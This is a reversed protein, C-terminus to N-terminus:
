KYLIEQMIGDISETGDDKFTMTISNEPNYRTGEIEEHLTSLDDQINDIYLVIDDAKFVKPSLRHGIREVCERITQLKFFNFIGNTIEDDITKTLKGLFADERTRQIRGKVALVDVLLAFDEIDIKEQLISDVVEDCSYNVKDWEMKMLFELRTHLPVSADILDDKLVLQELVGQNRFSTTYFTLVDAKAVGSHHVEVFYSPEDMQMLELMRQNALEFLEPSIEVYADGMRALRHINTFICYLQEVYRAGQILIRQTDPSQRLYEVIFGHVSPNHLKVAYENGEVANISVFCESLVKLIKAWETDLANLPKEALGSRNYIPCFYKYAKRWDSEPIEEGMTGVILLAYKAENSIYEFAQEWVSTPRDLMKVFAKMFDAEPVTTWVRKDLYTEIVRPTFYPHNLIQMYNKKYLVQKLYSEPLQANIIHNRLIEARIKASYDGMDITCKAIDYNNNRLKEFHSKADSLIYERTTMILLKDSKRKVGDILGILKSEFGKEEIELANAGLFDDIYVIQKRGDQLLGVGKDLEGKVCVLEEYKEKGLMYWILMRALTTKGIGPIGSIIVYHYKKLIELAKTFSENEVYIKVTEKIEDLEWDSWNKTDKHLVHNLINTSSLWLKYFREEIDKHKELLAKLDDKGLIDSTKLIYPEFMEKIADKQPPNLGISTSLIYREPKLKKVKKVEEKLQTFLSKEEKYRKAQVIAVGGNETEFRLDIGGDKGEKFTEIFIGYEAELLARTLNEFESFSLIGFDYDCM